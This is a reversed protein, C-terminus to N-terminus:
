GVNSYMSTELMELVSLFEIMRYSINLTSDLYIYYACYIMPISFMLSMSFFLEVIITTHVKYINKIIFWKMILNM